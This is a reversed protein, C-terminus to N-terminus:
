VDRRWPLTPVRIAPLGRRPSAQDRVEKPDGRWWKALTRRHDPGQKEQRPTALHSMGPQDLLGMSEQDKRQLLFLGAPARRLSSRDPLTIAVTTYDGPGSTLITRPTSPRSGTESLKSDKM